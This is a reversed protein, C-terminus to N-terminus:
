IDSISNRYRSAIEATASAFNGYYAFATCTYSLEKPARDNAVEIGTLEWDFDIGASEAAKGFTITDIIMKDGEERFTIGAEDALRSGDANKAGLPMM